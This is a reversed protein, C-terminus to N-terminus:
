SEGKAKERAANRRIAFELLRQHVRHEVDMLHAEHEDRAARLRGVAASLSENELAEARDRALRYDEMSAGVLPEDAAAELLARKLDPLAAELRTVLAEVPMTPVPGLLADTLDTLREHLDRAPKSSAAFADDGCPPERSSSAAERASRSAAEKEVQEIVALLEVNWAHAKEIDKTIESASSSTPFRTPGLVRRRIANEELVLVDGDFLKFIAPGSM